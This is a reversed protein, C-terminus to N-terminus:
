IGKTAAIAAFVHFVYARHQNARSVRDAEGACPGGDCRLDDLLVAGLVDGVGIIALGRLLVVDQALTLLDIPSDYGIKAYEEALATLAELRPVQRRYAADVMDRWDADSCPAGSCATAPDPLGTVFDGVVFLQLARLRLLAGDVATQLEALSRTDPADPTPTTADAAADPTDPPPAPAATADGCTAAAAAALPAGGCGAATAGLWALLALVDLRPKKM